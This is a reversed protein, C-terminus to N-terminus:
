ASPQVIKRYYRYRYASIVIEVAALALAFATLGYADTAYLLAYVALLTLTSLYVSANFPKAYGWAMLTPLGLYMGLCGFFYYGILCRLINISQPIIAQSGAFIKVGWPALMYIACSAIAAGLATLLFMRKALKVDQRRASHPYIAQNFMKFPIFAATIIKQALEFAAVETMGLFIGTAIKALNQNIVISARSAFFPISNSFTQWLEQTTPMVLRIKEVFLLIYLGVLSSLILGGIQLAPVYLYDDASRVVLFLTALYFAISLFSTITLLKMREVGQFYWQPFVIEPFAIMYTILFLPANGRLTPLAAIGIAYIIGVALFLLAKVGLVSSVIRGLSRKDDRNLSVDKVASVDLGFNVLIVAFAAFSQAFAIEGFREAGVTRLVYPLAIFPSLIRVINIITLFATNAAISSM